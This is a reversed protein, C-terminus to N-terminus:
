ELVMINLEYKALERAINAGIVGAGIVIVDYMM